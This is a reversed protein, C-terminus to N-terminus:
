FPILTPIKLIFIWFDFDKRIEIIIDSIMCEMAKEVKAHIFNLASFFVSVAIGTDNTLSFCVFRKRCIKAQEATLGKCDIKEVSNGPAVM